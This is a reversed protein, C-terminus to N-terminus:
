RRGEALKFVAIHRCLHGGLFSGECTCRYAFRHHGTRRKKVWYWKDSEQTSPVRAYLVIGQRVIQPRVLGVAGNSQRGVAQELVEQM